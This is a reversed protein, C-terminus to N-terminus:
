LHQLWVHSIICLICCYIVAILTHYAASDSTRLHAIYTFEVKVYWNHLSHFCCMCADDDDDDTQSCYVYISHSVQMLRCLPDTPATTFSFSWLFKRAGWRKHWLAKMWKRQRDRMVTSWRERPQTWWTHKYRPTNPSFYSDLWHVWVTLISHM